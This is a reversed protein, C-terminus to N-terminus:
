SPCILAIMTLDLFREAYNKVTMIEESFSRTLAFLNDFFHSCALSLKGLNLLIETKVRLWAMFHDRGCHYCSSM